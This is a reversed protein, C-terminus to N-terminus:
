LLSSEAGTQEGGSRTAPARRRNQPGPQTVTGDNCPVYPVDLVAQNGSADAGTVHLTLSPGEIEIADHVACTDLKCKKKQDYEIIIGSTTPLSLCAGALLTGEVTPPAPDCADSAAFEVVLLEKGNGDGTGGAGKHFRPDGWHPFDSTLAFHGTLTPATTDSVTISVSDAESESSGDSVTLTIETVGLPLTVVPAVGDVVGGGEPFSGTWKYTIEDDDPDSSASGDLTVATGDPAGCEIAQDAGADAVPPRNFQNLLVSISDDDTNGVIVDPFNDGNVDTALVIFPEIDVLLAQAMMFTADGIGLLITVSGIDATALDLTGNRDFDALAVSLPGSGVAHAVAGQFTGDGNSLLVSVDDSSVNATVIDPLTDGNLDGSAIAAPETGASFPGTDTGFTGDGAGLLVSVTQDGLNVVSIDLHDDGNYDGQALAIPISGVPFFMETQFSGDGTGLLISVDDFFANATAVDPFGDENYDGALIAFPFAGVGFFVEDQFTGDGNGLLLSVDDTGSNATVIDLHEDGNFHGVTIASPEFGVAKFAAAGFAGGGTGLLTAVNDSLSNSTALDQNEDHNFDGATLGTPATGVAYTVPSAFPPTLPAPLAMTAIGHAAPASSVWGEPSPGADGPGTSLDATALVVALAFALVAPLATRAVRISVPISRRSM